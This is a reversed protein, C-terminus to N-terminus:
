GVWVIHFPLILMQYFNHTCLQPIMWLWLLEPYNEYLCDRMDFCKQVILCTVDFLFLQHWDYFLHITSQIFILCLFLIFIVDMLQKLLVVRGYFTICYSLIFGVNKCKENDYQYQALLRYLDSNWIFLLMDICM